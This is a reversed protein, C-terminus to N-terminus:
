WCKQFIEKGNKELLKQEFVPILGVHRDIGNAEKSDALKVCAMNQASKMAKKPSKSLAVGKGSAYVHPKFGYGAGTSETIIVTAKFM